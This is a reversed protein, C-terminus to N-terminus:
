ERFAVEVIADDVGEQTLYQHAPGGSASLGDLLEAAEIWGDHSRSWRVSAGGQGQVVKLTKLPERENIITELIFQRIGEGKISRQSILDITSATSGALSTFISKLYALATPEQIDFRITAGYSGQYHDVIIDDPDERM